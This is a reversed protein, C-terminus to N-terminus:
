KIVEIEGVANQTTKITIRIREDIYENLRTMCIGHPLRPISGERGCFNCQWINQSNRVTQFQFDHYLDKESMM